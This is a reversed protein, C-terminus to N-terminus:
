GLPFTVIFRAGEAYTTDLRLTGSSGEVIGRCVSLGLGTGAGVDKTTVFPDFIREVLEAPVGPGDDEVEIRATPGDKQARIVITGERQSALAAGANLLLNLLVQTLRQPSVAFLGFYAVGDGRYDVECCGVVHHEDDSAILMAGNTREIRASIGALDIREDDLLDAETTWGQRSGEGRYAGRVLAVLAAADAPVATRITLRDDNM